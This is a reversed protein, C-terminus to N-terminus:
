VCRSTYLLCDEEQTYVSMFGDFAIKSASVTFRHGAADIKVSTTEYRAPTMRSAVFRKWILQYRDRICM